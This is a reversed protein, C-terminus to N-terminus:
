RPVPVAHALERLVDDERMGEVEASAKLVIRHRLAHVYLEKIDDPTVYDRGAVRASTKAAIQLLLAARPSAGLQISPNDRTRRVLELLYDVVESQIRTSLVEARAELLEPASVVSEVQDLTRLLGANDGSHLELVRKEEELSPYGLVINFLFRDLQAEPLPYTGEQEVPNQTALVFYPSPLARTEGEISVQREQMAELLSSQTKAPARNIEDALLVNTFVPGEVLHFSGQQFNFIQTGIVDSPMLDPTFQVRGFELSLAKAVARVLTTKALGPVGELLVHGDALLSVLVLRVAEDQGVIVKRIEASLQEYISACKTM